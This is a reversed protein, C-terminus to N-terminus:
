AVPVTGRFRMLEDVLAAIRKCREDCRKAENSEMGVFIASEIAHAQENMLALLENKIRRVKIHRVIDDGTSQHATQTKM